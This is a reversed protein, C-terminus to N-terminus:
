PAPANTSVLTSFDIQFALREPESVGVIGAASAQLNLSRLRIFPSSNEFHALFAGFDHYRAMGNFSYTAAQYPVSPPIDPDVVRPPQFSTVVVKDEHLDQLDLVHNIVWRYLDGRAMQNELMRVRRLNAATEARYQPALSRASEALKLSTQVSDIATQKQRRWSRLTNIGGQWLLILVVLAGVVLSAFQRRREPSWSNM